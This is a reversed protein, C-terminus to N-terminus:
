AANEIIYPNEPTGDGGAMDGLPLNTSVGAPKPLGKLYPYSVGSTIAWVSSFDWGAYTSQKIMASTLRGVDYSDQPIYGSAVGDYYCGTMTVSSIYGIIGGTYVGKSNAIIRGTCYCNKLTGGSVYGLLGGVYANVDTGTVSGLSFSNSIICTYTISSYSFTLNAQGVLGGIYSTGKVNGAAYSRNYKRFM